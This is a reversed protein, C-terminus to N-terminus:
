RKKWPPMPYVSKKSTNPYVEFVKGDLIQLVISTGNIQGNPNFKITGYITQLDSNVLAERVKERDLSGTKEIAYKLVSVCAIGAANHYDPDYKFKNKFINIFEATDKFIYGKFNM